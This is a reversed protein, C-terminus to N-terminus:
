TGDATTPEASDSDALEAMAASMGTPYPAARPITSMLWKTFDLLREPTYDTPHLLMLRGGEEANGILLRTLLDIDIDTSSRRVRLGITLLEKALQVIGERIEEVKHRIEEPSGEAPHLILLWRSPNRRVADLFTGIAHLLVDDPDIDLWPPSPIAEALESLTRQEERELLAALLEGRNAFFDYVVPKTVGAARAVSEMSIPDFSRAETILGLTTDLLQERRQEPPLRPAPRRRRM